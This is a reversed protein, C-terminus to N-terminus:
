CMPSAAFRKTSSSIPSRRPEEAPDDPEWLIATQDGRSALHRDLCNAAVNLKGDAFWRIHFDEEDFSWDGALEPRKIWDLRKAQELWFSGPDAISRGYLKEYGAADVRAGRAWEKSVPYLSDSM